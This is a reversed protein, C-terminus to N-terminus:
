RKEGLEKAEMWGTAGKDQGAMVEVKVLPKGPELIKVETDHISAYRDRKTFWADKPGGDEADQRSYWVHSYRPVSYTEGESPGCGAFIVAAAFLWNKRTM